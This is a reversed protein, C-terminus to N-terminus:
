SSLALIEALACLDGNTHANSRCYHDNDKNNSIVSEGRGLKRSLLSLSSITVVQLFFTFMFGTREFLASQAVRGQRVRFIESENPNLGTSTSISVTIM